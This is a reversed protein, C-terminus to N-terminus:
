KKKFRGNSFPPPVEAIRVHYDEVENDPIFTHEVVNIASKIIALMKDVEDVQSDLNCSVEVICDTMDFIGSHHLSDRLQDSNEVQLNITKTM